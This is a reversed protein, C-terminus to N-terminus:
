IGRGFLLCQVLVVGHVAYQTTMFMRYPLRLRGRHGRSTRTALCFAVAGAGALLVGAAVRLVPVAWVALAGFGVGVGIVLVAMLRRARRDGLVVPLTRRGAVRDGAVDSLDKTMGGLSMWLSMAGALAVLPLVSPGAPLDPAALGGSGGSRTGGVAALWGALYTLLGGATVVAVFGVVNAKQPHPGASYAWGLGLMTVVAVALPLSVAAGLGVALVALAAVVARAVPMSLAGSALPRGSGNHRDEIQDCIGNLLYVHWTACLWAAAGVGIGFLASGSFRGAAASSALGLLAGVLFRLQFILQVVPRAEVWSLRVAHALPGVGGATARDSGTGGRRIWETRGGGSPGVVTGPLRVIRGQSIVSM